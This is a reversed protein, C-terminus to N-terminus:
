ALSANSLNAMEAVQAPSRSLRKGPAAGQGLTRGAAGGGLPDAPRRFRRQRLRARHPGSLEATSCGSRLRYATPEFGVRPVVEEPWRAPLDPSSPSRTSRRGWQQHRTRHARAIPARAGAGPRDLLQPAEFRGSCRTETSSGTHRNAWRNGIGLMFDSDLFNANSYRYQTQM